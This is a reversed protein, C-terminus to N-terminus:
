AKVKKLQELELELEQRRRRNIVIADTVFEIWRVAETDPDTIKYAPQGLINAADHIAKKIDVSANSAPISKQNIAILERNQKQLLKIYDCLANSVKSM